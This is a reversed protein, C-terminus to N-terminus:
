CGFHGVKGGNKQFFICKRSNFHSHMICLCAHSMLLITRAHIKGFWRHMKSITWLKIMIELFTSFKEFIVALFEFNQVNNAWIKFVFIFNLFACNFQYFVLLPREKSTDHMGTCQESANWNLFICIKELFHRSFRGNQIGFQTEMAVSTLIHFISTNQGDM